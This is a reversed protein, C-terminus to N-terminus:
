IYLRRVKKHYRGETQDATWGSGYTGSQRSRICVLEDVAGAILLNRAKYGTKSGEGGWSNHEPLFIKVPLGGKKAVLEAISDVGEAGGSILLRPSESRLICEILWLTTERQYDTLVQSGVVGLIGNVVVVGVRQYMFEGPTSVM